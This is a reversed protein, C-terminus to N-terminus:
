HVPATRPTGKQTWDTPDPLGQLLPDAEHIRDRAAMQERLHELWKRYADEVVLLVYEPSILEPWLLQGVV